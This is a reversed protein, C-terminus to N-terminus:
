GTSTNPKGSNASPVKYEIIVAEGNAGTIEERMVYGRRKGKTALHFRIMPGDGSKIAALMQGETFDLAREDEDAYARRTEEWRNVYKEATHWACGLARAIQSVIGYSGEIAKLTQEKTYETPM